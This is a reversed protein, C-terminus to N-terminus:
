RRLYEALLTLAESDGAIQALIQDQEQQKTALAGGALSRLRDDLEPHLAIRGSVEIGIRGLFGFVVRFQQEETM